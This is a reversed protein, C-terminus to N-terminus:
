WKDGFAKKFVADLLENFEMGRSTEAWTKGAFPKVNLKEVKQSVTNMSAPLEASFVLSSLLCTMVVTLISIFCDKKM